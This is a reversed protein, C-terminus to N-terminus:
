NSRRGHNIEEEQRFPLRLFSTKQFPRCLRRGPLRPSLPLWLVKDPARAGHGRACAVPPDHGDSRTRPGSLHCVDCPARRAYKSSYVCFRLRQSSSGWTFPACRWSGGGCARPSRPGLSRSPFAATVKAM